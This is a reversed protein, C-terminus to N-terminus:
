STRSRHEGGPIEWLDRYFEPERLHYIIHRFEERIDLLIDYIQEPNNGERELKPLQEDIFRRFSEALDLFAHALASAEPENPRDYRIVEPCSALRAALRKLRIGYGTPPPSGTM